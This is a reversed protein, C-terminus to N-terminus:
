AFVEAAPIRFGPLHPEAALNGRVNILEPEADPRFITVTRFRPNIVWVLPVGTELYLAVKDDIEGVRNAPSLIEVALVPPGDFYPSTRPTRAVLEASVYAVDIGVNAEPESRLRFYAEGSVIRGRPAGLGELWSKLIYVINSEVSAHLQHRRTMSEGWEVVVGDILDRDIGDDPLAFFEESTMRRPAGPEAPTPAEPGVPVTEEDHDDVRPSIPTPTSTSSSM